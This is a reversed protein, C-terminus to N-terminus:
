SAPKANVRHYVTRQKNVKGDKTTDTEEDIFTSGHDSLHLRSDFSSGDTSDEGHRVLTGDQERKVGQQGVTKGDAVIPHMSGDQPGSWSYSFAKGKDDVGHVRYSLMQPTDKVTGELSRPGPESGFDSQAIDLKWNGAYSPKDQALGGISISLIAWLFAINRM